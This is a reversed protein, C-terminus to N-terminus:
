KLVVAPHLFGARGSPRAVGLLSGDPAFLRVAATGALDLGGSEVPVPIESGHGALRASEVNLRVMPLDPLLREMPVARALAGVPNEEVAALQLADLLTFQGSATRRLEELCAGCGLAQGLDHVLSRVYYGASSRLRLLGLPYDLAVLECALLEVMAPQVAVARGRRALEHARVGAIKKASFPPPMQPRRGLFGALAAAVAGSEPATSSESTALTTGTRDWTDTTLGLRFSADYSKPQGSLFQALRTARGVVLVLVGTALPDLTGLHGIARTQLARRCRAVVDHSTPGAPKDVVLVGDM